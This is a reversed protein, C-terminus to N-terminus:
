FEICEDVIDKCFKQIDDCFWENDKEVLCVCDQCRCKYNECEKCEKNTEM